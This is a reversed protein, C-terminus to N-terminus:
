ASIIRQKAKQFEEENLIGKERLDSLKLLEDTMNSNNLSTKPTYIQREIYDKISEALDNNSRFMFTNEDTTADFIGGTSEKGGFISFQIYGSLVGAKKFQIATISSFPIIKDGKLGKTMFGLLGNPSIILRDEYVKITSGAGDMQYKENM